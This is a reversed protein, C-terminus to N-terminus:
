TRYGEIYVKLGKATGNGIADVDFTLEAGSAISTDVFTYPTAATISTKENNDITIKTGLITSGSENIDVTVATGSTQATVLSTYVATVTFAYPLFFSELTTGTSVVGTPSTLSVVFLEKPSIWQPDAGSGQTQLFKGSTGAALRANTSADRFIIDGRTTTPALADFGAAATSQGTGGNTIALDTGSWNGNNITSATALSGLGLNTRATSASTLDSLNNTSVLDGSGAGSAGINGTRVFQISCLDGSTFSGSNDVHTVALQTWGSNDTSAGSIIYIVYNEPDSVKKFILQGRNTTTTSDDWSLIFAELDPNGSDATTDAIAIATVSALTANNLRFLGAGPDAMSTSSSYNFSFGPSLGDNGQPGTDGTDGKPGQEGQVGQEGQPGQPGDPGIPGQLAGQAILEADVLRLPEQQSTPAPLNLIRNSNMDLNANMQNPSTGDRSLTKEIAAEIRSNNTNLTGTASTDNVLSELDNLTVKAM